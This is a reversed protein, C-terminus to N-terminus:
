RVDKRAWARDFRAARVTLRHDAIVAWGFLTVFMLTVLM